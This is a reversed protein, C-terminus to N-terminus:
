SAAEWIANSPGDHPSGDREVSILIEDYRSPDFALKLVTIGDDPRFDGVFTPTSGSVLWVRYVTGPPPM